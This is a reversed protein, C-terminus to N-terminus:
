TGDGGVEVKTKRQKTARTPALFAAVRKPQGPFLKKLDGELRDLELNIDDIYLRQEADLPAEALVAADRAGAATELADTDAVWRPTWEM